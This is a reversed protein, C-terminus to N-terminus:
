RQRFQRIDGAKRWKMEMSDKAREGTFAYRLVYAPETQFARGHPQAVGAPGNQFDGKFGSILRM